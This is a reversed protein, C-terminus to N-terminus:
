FTNKIQLNNQSLCQYKCAKLINQYCYYESLRCIIQRYFESSIYNIQLLFALNHSFYLSNIGINRIIKYLKFFMENSKAQNRYLFVLCSAFIDQLIGSKQM